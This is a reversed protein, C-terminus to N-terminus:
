GKNRAAQWVRRRRDVLHRKKTANFSIKYWKVMEEPDAALRHTVQPTQGATGWVLGFAARIGFIFANVLRDFVSESDKEKANTVDDDVVIEEKARDPIKERADRTISKKPSKWISRMALDRQGMGMSGRYFLQRHHRHRCPRIRKSPSTSPRRRLM